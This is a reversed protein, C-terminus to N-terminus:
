APTKRGYPTTRAGRVPGDWALLAGGAGDRHASTLYIRRGDAGGFAPKTPAPFPIAHREMLTGDPSFRYLEAGGVGAIWYAGDADLAAGDPRGPLDNFIRFEARRDLAPIGNEVPLTWVTQVTAHCDSFYLRARAADWALGNATLLGNLISTISGDPDLRFLTGIPKRNEPDMTAFWLRGDSDTCADNCRVGIQPLDAIRSFTAPGTDFRFIGTEMGVVPAGDTSLQVFGPMEPTTWTRTQGEPDTRLLLQGDIDVWWLAQEEVSWVPSEGLAATVQGVPAFGSTHQDGTEGTV